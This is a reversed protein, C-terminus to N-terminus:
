RERAWIVWLVIWLMLIRMSVIYWDPSWAGEAAWVDDGSGMCLGILLVVAMILLRGIALGDADVDLINVPDDFIGAGLCSFIIIYIMWWILYVDAQMWSGFM